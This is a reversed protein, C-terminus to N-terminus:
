SIFRKSDFFCLGAWTNAWNVEALSLSLMGTALVLQLCAPSYADSLLRSICIVSLPSTLRGGSLALTDITQELAFTLSWYKVSAVTFQQQLYMILLVAIFYAHCLLCITVYFRQLSTQSADKGNREVDWIHKVSLFLSLRIHKHFNSELKKRSRKAQYICNISICHISKESQSQLFM